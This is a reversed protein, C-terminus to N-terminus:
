VPVFEYTYIIDNGFRDKTAQELIFSTDTLEDVTFVVSYYFTSITMETWESNVSWKGTGWPGFFSSITCVQASESRAFGSDTAFVYIDDLECPQYVVTTFDLNSADTKLRYLCAKIKWQHTTLLTTRNPASQEKKSCATIYLVIFFISGSLFSKFM